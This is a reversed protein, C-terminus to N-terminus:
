PPLPASDLVAFTVFSVAEALSLALAAGESGLSYALVISTAICVAVNAATLRLIAGHEDAMLVVAASLAQPVM